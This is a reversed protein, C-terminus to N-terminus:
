MSACPVAWMVRTTGTGFVMLASACRVSLRGSGSWPGGCDKASRRLPVSAYGSTRTYFPSAETGILQNFVLNGTNRHANDCGLARRIGVTVLHEEVQM